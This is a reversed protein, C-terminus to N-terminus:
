VAVTVAGLALAERRLVSHGYVHLGRQILGFRTPNVITENKVLNQATAVASTHGALIYDSSDSLASLATTGGDPYYYTPFATGTNVATLNNTVFLTFGNVMRSRVGNSVSGKADGTENARNLLGVEKMLAEEFRPTIVAFRGNEPVNQENLIRNLRSLADLPTPNTGAYDVAQPSGVAGYLNSSSVKSAMYALTERDMADKLEYAASEQCLAEYDIYSQGQTIPDIEFAYSNGKDISLTTEEDNIYQTTLTAGREYASVTVRPQKPIHVTTFIDTIADGDFSSTIAEVTSAQRLYLLAEKKWSEPAFLGNPFNNYGASVPYASTM